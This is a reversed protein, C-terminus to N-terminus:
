QERGERLFRVLAQRAARLTSRVTAPTMKLEDAVEAPTYGDYIWAMVQRQRPPLRRLLNLLLSKEVVTAATVDPLLVSEAPVEDVLDEISGMRRAYERSSVRRAWATPQDISHWYEFARRMTEQAVDAADVLSAGQWLLFAVLKPTFERYFDPFSNDVSPERRDAYTQLTPECGLATPGAHGTSAAIDDADGTSEVNDTREDM